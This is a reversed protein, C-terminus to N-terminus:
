SGPPASRGAHPHIGGGHLRDRPRLHARRDAGAQGLPDAVGDARGGHEPREDQQAAIPMNPIFKWVSSGSKARYVRWRSASPKPASKAAIPSPESIPESDSAKMPERLGASRSSGPRRGRTRWRRSRPEAQRARREGGERQDHEHAEGRHQHDVGDVDGHLAAHGVLKAPPHHRQVDGDEGARGRDAAEEGPVTAWVQPGGAPKRTPAANETKKMPRTAQCRTTRPLPADVAARGQHRSSRTRRARAARRQREQGQRM